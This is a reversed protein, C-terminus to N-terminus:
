NNNGSGTTRHIELVPIPTNGCPVNTVFRLTGKSDQFALGAQYSGGKFEGWAQPIQSVCAASGFSTLQANAKTSGLDLRISAALILAVVVVTSLALRKM